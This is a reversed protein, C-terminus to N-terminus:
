SAWDASLCLSVFKIPVICSSVPRHGHFTVAPMMNKDRDNLGMARKKRDEWQIISWGTSVSQTVAMIKESMKDAEESKPTHRTAMGKTEPQSKAEKKQGKDRSNTKQRKLTTSFKM